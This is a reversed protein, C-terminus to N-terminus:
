NVAFHSENSIKGMGENGMYHILVAPFLKILCKRNDQGHFFWAQSLPDFRDFSCTRCIYFADNFYDFRTTKFCIIVLM